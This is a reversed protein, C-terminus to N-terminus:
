LNQLEGTISDNRVAIAAVKSFDEVKPLEFAKQEGSSFYETFSSPISTHKLTECGSFLFSLVVFLCKYLTNFHKIM